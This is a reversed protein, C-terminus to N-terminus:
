LSAIERAVCSCIPSRQNLRPSAPGVGVDTNTSPCSESGAQIEKSWSQDAAHSTNDAYVAGSDSNVQNGINELQDLSQSEKAAHSTGAEECAPHARHRHLDDCVESHESPLDSSEHEDIGDQKLLIEFLTDPSFFVATVYSCMCCLLIPFCLNTERDGLAAYAVMEVSVLTGCLPLRVVSAFFGAMGMIVCTRFQEADVPNDNLDGYVCLRIASHLVAGFCGGLVLSPTFAGGSGNSAIAFIVAVCKFLCFCLIPMPPLPPDATMHLQLTNISMGWVEMGLGWECSSHPMSEVHNSGHHNNEVHDQRSRQYDLYATPSCIHEERATLLHVIVGCASTVLASIIMTKMPSTGWDKWKARLLEICRVLASGVLGLFLGFPMSVLMWPHLEASADSAPHLTWLEKHGTIVRVMWVSVVSGIALFAVAVQSSSSDLFEEMVHLTGGLPSNYAAAMGCACGTMVIQPMADKPCSRPFLTSFGRYVTCAVASAIHLTPAEAGLPAGGGIYLSTAVMRQLGVQAPIYSKELICLKVNVFGGSKIDPMFQRAKCIIAASVITTLTYHLMPWWDFGINTAVYWAPAERIWKVGGLLMKHFGVNVMGCLCGVILSLCVWLAYVSAVWWKSAREKSSRRAHPSALISLSAISGQRRLVSGLRHVSKPSLPDEPPNDPGIVAGNGAQSKTEVPLAPPM